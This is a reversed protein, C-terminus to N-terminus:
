DNIIMRRKINEEGKVIEEIVGIGADLEEAEHLDKARKKERITNQVCRSGYLADGLIGGSAFTKAWEDEIHLIKM